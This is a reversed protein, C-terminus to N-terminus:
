QRGRKSIFHLFYRCEATQEGNEIISQIVLEIAGGDQFEFTTVDEIGTKRRLTPGGYQAILASRYPTDSCAKTNSIYDDLAMEARVMEANLFYYYIRQVDDQNTWKRNKIGGFRWYEDETTLGSVGRINERRWEYKLVKVKSGLIAKTQEFSTGFSVKGPSELRARNEQAQVSATMGVLLMVSLLSVM